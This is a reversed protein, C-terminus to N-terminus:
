ELWARPPEKLLQLRLGQEPMQRNLLSRRMYHITTTTADDNNDDEEAEAKNDDEEKNSTNAVNLRYNRLGGV